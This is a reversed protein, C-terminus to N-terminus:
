ASTPMIEVRDRGILGGDASQEADNIAVGAVQRWHGLDKGDIRRWDNAVGM